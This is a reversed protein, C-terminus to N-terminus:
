QRKFSNKRCGGKGKAVGWPRLYNGSEQKETLRSYFGGKTFKNQDERKTQKQNKKM